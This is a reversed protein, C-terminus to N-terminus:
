KVKYDVKDYKKLYDQCFQLAQEGPLGKEKAMKVYDALIPKMLAAWRADEEKTLEVFKNGKKVLAVRMKDDSNQWMIGSREIWEEDLKDIIQQIDKPLSNWKQKNMVTYFTSTYSSSWHRIHYKVVDGLSWVMIGEDPLTIGEAVGKVLADYAETVPLSVPSAGLASVIKASLGSARIKMGKLDELKAVPKKTHIFGPGHADLFLLKVDDFEKPTFKKYYENALKTTFYGSKYGLPLDLVETLPFRGRHYTLIGYGIDAIGKTVGDYTQAVPMLTSGPYVTVKVRGGTRKEVEAAWEKALAVQDTTPPMFHAFRLSIVKEASFGAVSVILILMCISISCVFIKGYISKM